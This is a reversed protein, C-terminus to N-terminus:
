DVAIKAPAQRGTRAMFEARSDDLVQEALREWTEMYRCLLAGRDLMIQEVDAIFERAAYGGDPITPSTTGDANPPALPWWVGLRLTHPFRRIIFGCEPYQAAVQATAWQLHDDEPGPVALPNVPPLRRPDAERM